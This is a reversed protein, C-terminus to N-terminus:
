KTNSANKRGRRKVERNAVPKTPTASSEGRLNEIIDDDIVEKGYSYVVGEHEFFKKFHWGRPKPPTTDIPADGCSGVMKLVCFRCIVWAAGAYTKEQHRNCERCTVMETGHIYKKVDGGSTTKKRRTM